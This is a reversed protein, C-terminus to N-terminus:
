CPDIVGEPLASPVATADSRGYDESGGASHRDGSRRFRGRKMLKTDLADIKAETFIEAEIDASNSFQARQPATM